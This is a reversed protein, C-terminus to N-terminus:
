RPNKIEESILGNNKNPGSGGDAKKLQIRSSKIHSSNTRTLLLDEYMKLNVNESTTKGSVKEDDDLRARKSLEM